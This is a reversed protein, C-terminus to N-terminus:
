VVSQQQQPVMMVQQQQQQQLPVMQLEDAATTPVQGYYMATTPLGTPQLVYIQGNPGVIQMPQTPSVASANSSACNPDDCSACCTGCCDSGSVNILFAFVLTVLMSVCAALAMWFAPGYIYSRTGNSYYYNNSPSADAKFASMCGSFIGMAIAPLVGALAASVIQFVKFQCSDKCLYRLFTFVITAITSILSIILVILVGIGNYHCKDCFFASCGDDDYAIVNDSSYGTKIYFGFLGLYAHVVDDDISGGWYLAKLNSKTM